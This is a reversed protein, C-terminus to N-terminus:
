PVIEPEDDISLLFAILDDQDRVSFGAITDVWFAHGSGEVNARALRVDTRNKEVVATRLRRDILVRLSARPDPAFGHMVTGSAGVRDEHAVVWGGDSGTEPHALADAAAAIGGDHLYPATVALGVLSPVKYGGGQDGQAFALNQM